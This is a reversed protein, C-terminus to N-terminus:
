QFAIALSESITNQGQSLMTPNGAASNVIQRTHNDSNDNYGNQKIEHINFPSRVLPATGGL